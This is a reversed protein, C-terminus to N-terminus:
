TARYGNLMLVMLDNDIPKGDLIDARPVRGYRVFGARAYTRTAIVNPSAVTLHVQLLGDLSRAHDLAADLLRGFIGPGRAEPVVYVSVISGRHVIKLRTERVFATMGVLRDGGDIALFTANNANSRQTRLADLAEELPVRIAEEYPQGFAEPHDRLARLRLERRAPIRADHEWIEPTRHVLDRRSTGHTM